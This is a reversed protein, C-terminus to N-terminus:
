DLLDFIKMGSVHPLLLLLRNEQWERWNYCLSLSELSLRNLRRPSILIHLTINWFIASNIPIIRITIAATRSIPFKSSLVKGMNKPNSPINMMPTKERLLFFFITIDFLHIFNCYLVSTYERLFSRILFHGLIVM